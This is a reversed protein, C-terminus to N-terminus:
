GILRGHENLLRHPLRQLFSTDNAIKAPALSEDGGYVEREPIRGIIEGDSCQSILAEKTFDVVDLDLRTRVSRPMEPGKKRRCRPKFNEIVANM